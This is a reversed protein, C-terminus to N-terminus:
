RRTATVREGWRVGVQDRPSFIAVESGAVLMASRPAAAGLFGWDPGFLAAYDVAVDARDLGYGGWLPHIVEHVVGRAPKNPGRQPFMGFVWRHEKLWHELTDPGPRTVPKRAQIRITHTALPRPPAGTTAETAGGTDISYEATITRTDQTLHSRITAPTCPENYLKRRAWAVMPKQVYSRVIVVGRQGAGAGVHRARGGGGDDTTRVYLRLQWELFDAHGPWPLGLARTQKWEMAVLSVLAADTPLLGPIPPADVELRVGRPSLPVYPSLMARPVVYSLMALNTWRATLLPRPM